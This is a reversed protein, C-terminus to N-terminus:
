PVAGRAMRRSGESETVATTLDLVLRELVGPPRGSGSKLARDAALVLRFAPAGAREPFARIQKQVKDILFPYPPIGLALALERGQQGSDMLAQGLVLVRLHRALLFLVRSPEEGEALIGRLLRIAVECQGAGVREAFDFISGAAASGLTESLAEYTLQHSPAIFDLAKRIEQDLRHLDPGAHLELMSAAEEGMEAGLDKARSQIWSALMAGKLPMFELMRAGRQLTKFITKRFDPKGSGASLLVCASPSPAKLYEQLGEPESERLREADKVWVLRRSSFMPLSRAADLIDTVSCSAGELLTLNWSAAESDSGLVAERIRQAAEEKLFAEDGFVLYVPDIRGAALERRLSRLDAGRGAM